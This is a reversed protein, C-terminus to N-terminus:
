AIICKESAELEQSTKAGSNILTDKISQYTSDNKQKLANEYMNLLDLLTRPFNAKPSGYECWWWERIFDSEKVNLDCCKSEIFAKLMDEDQEFIIFQLLRHSHNKIHEQMTENQLIIHVNQIDHNSIVVHFLDIIDQSSYNCLDQEDESKFGSEIVEQVREPNRSVCAMLLPSYNDSLYAETTIIGGAPSFQSPFVTKQKITNNEDILTGYTGPIKYQLDSRLKNKISQAFEYNKDFFIATFAISTMDKKSACFDERLILQSPNCFSLLKAFYNCTKRLNNKEAPALKAILPYLIDKEPLINFFGISQDHDMAFTLSGFFLVYLMIHRHSFFIKM